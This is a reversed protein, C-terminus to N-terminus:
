ATSRCVFVATGPLVRGRTPSWGGWVLRNDEPWEPEVLDLLTFGAAVLARVWDGVTRHHEAYLVTGDAAREVYPTRDFYSRDAVLGAPGPDDPFAWRVPHTVSFVWRGGPRLVRRVDRLVAGADAVFPLAGYASFALDATRDALPLRGADAQLVPVWTGLRRDVARAQALMGASLDVGVARAGRAAAWRTGQAAGCGIEAVTLGDVDGLLRVDDEDTGEPGWVLRDDGLFAGHEAAYAASERDWWSRNAGTSEQAGVPSYGASALTGRPAAADDGPM